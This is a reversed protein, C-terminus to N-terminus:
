EGTQQKKQTDLAKVAAELTFALSERPISEVFPKVVWGLGVPIARTLSVSEVQLYLGGDRETWSWWTNMRWLFGHEEGPSLERERSTGARDVEAIRTSRSVSWGDLADLRGFEVAYTANTVVTLVHKQRVQMWGEVRDGNAALIRAKTVQPAFVKPYGDFDRLLKEFDAAKAGPAFATGRWDHLLAGPLETGGAPSIEEVIVEGRRLRAQGEATGSEGALFGERSRHGQALTAEVRAVYQDFGAVAAAPAEAWVWGASALGLVVLGGALEAAGVRMRGCKMAKRMREKGVMVAGSVIKARTKATRLRNWDHGLRIV